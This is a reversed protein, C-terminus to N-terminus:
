RGALIAVFPNIDSFNLVGDQNCDGHLIECDPYAAHYGNPDGLALVFANIDDFYVLGDCNLDGIVGFTASISHNGDMTITTPNTSGHLDGGWVDFRWHDAPIATVTVTTGPSYTGGPPDLTISGQGVVTTELTYNTSGCDPGTLTLIFPGIGTSYSGVRILYTTGGTVALALNGRRYTGGCRDASCGLQNATTAPCTNSHASVVTSFSGTSNCLSIVANGSTAPTYTYFVDYGSTSSSDCTVSTGSEFNAGDLSGNLTGPCIPIANTCLDNAPPPPPIMNHAAFGAYIEVAHAGGYLAQDVAMFQTYIAPTIASGTHLLVSNLTLKSVIALYTEPNTAQLETRTSWVCGSLLQGCTHIEGSCPYQMTNLADRLGANCDNRFGYALVHDDAILAAVCDGYGEGYAQQGSGACQVIHHGYEHHVVNSYATNACGGANIYFNLSSGDYYANCSNNINVNLLFNTQTAIVPYDPKQALVWDRVVNAQVYANVDARTYESSNAENHMFDAPGPPTVTQTLTELPGALDNVTFYRGTMYSTVTVPDVGANPITFNGNADGYAVTGAIEVKAYPMVTDVEPNCEASKPLTTAMGHVQGTVDTPIIRNEAELIAGTAADAVFLWKDYVPTAPMGNDAEFVLALAPGRAEDGPWIVVDAAGFNVLGPHATVAASHAAETHLDALAAPAVTFDGLPRLTSGAWILPFGPDNLVVLRLESRWVPLDGRVQRYYVLTGRFVGADSDFAFGETARGNFANGSALEAPSVGYLGSYEQVFGAASDLASAGAGFSTGWAIFQGAGDNYLQIQPYAQRLLAAAGGPTDPAAVAAVQLVMLPLLCLSIRWRM